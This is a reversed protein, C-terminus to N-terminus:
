WGNTNHGKDEVNNGLRSELRNLKHLMCKSALSSWGLSVFPMQTPCEGVM